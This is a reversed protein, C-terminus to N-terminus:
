DAYTGSVFVTDTQNQRIYKEFNGVNQEGSALSTDRVEHYFSTGSNTQVEFYIEYENIETEEGDNRVKYEVEVFTTDGEVRDNWSTVEASLNEVSNNDTEEDLYMQASATQGEVVKISVSNSEYGKKDASITYTGTPVESIVFSGSNDTLISNTAPTTTINVSPIGDSNESELIKGEISGFTEPSITEKSCSIVLLPVCIVFLLSKNLYM